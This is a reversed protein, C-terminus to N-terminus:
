PKKQTYLEPPTLDVVKTSEPYDRESVPYNAKITSSSLGPPIRLPPISHAKLYDTGRNQIIGTKKVTSCSTLVLLLLLCILKVYHLM